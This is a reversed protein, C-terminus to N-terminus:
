VELPVRIEGSMLKPLLTDRIAALAQNQKFNNLIAYNHKEVVEEFSKLIFIPPIVIRIQHLNNKNISGFVTGEGNYQDFVPRLNSMMCVCFSYTETFPRISALGRGICCDELAINYDGVPARVSLLIDNAKAMRKPESTFLRRTPFRDGFEGRGQFFVVGNGTENYSDGRPSQGMTIESIEGLTGVRWGKPIPGLESDVFEGDRFPEFDVFWSKFIAQAQAELNKNIRNNLEIKDDLASLVAAIAKQESIPPLNIEYERIQRLSANKITTGTSFCHLYKQFRKTTLVYQIFSKDISDLINLYCVSKGLIIKENNYVAINGLTGNISILLTRSNLTKKYKEFESKTAKKTDSKIVIKNNQLNNGNIFYYDGIESFIPTGHLGDGLLSVCEQLKIKEWECRM